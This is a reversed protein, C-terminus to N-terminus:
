PSFLEIYQLRSDLLVNADFIWLVLRKGALSDGRRALNMWVAESGGDNLVIPDFTTGLRLALQAGLDASFQDGYWQTNSDGLLLYPSARERWDLPAGHADLARDIWVPVPEDAGPFLPPLTYAVQERRASAGALRESPALPGIKRVAAAIADAALRAGRPTWHPNKAHYLRVDEDAANSFRAAAFPPLLDVIEVGREVLAVLFHQLPELAGPFDAPLVPGGPLEEPYLQIRRPIPVALFDIGHARFAAAYAAIIRLPHDAARDDLVKWCRTPDTSQENWQTLFALERRSFVFSDFSAFAQDGLEGLLRQTRTLLEGDGDWAQIRAISRKIEQATETLRQARQHDAKTGERTGDNSGSCAGLLVVCAAASVIWGTQVSKQQM